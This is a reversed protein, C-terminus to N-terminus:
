KEVENTDQKSLILASISTELNLNEDGRMWDKEGVAQEADLPM